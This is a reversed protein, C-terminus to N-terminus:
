GEEYTFLDGPTVQLYACLKSLIKFTVVKSESYYLSTLTPRTIGTERSVTSIKLRKQGLIESFHNVVKGKEKPQTIEEYTAM